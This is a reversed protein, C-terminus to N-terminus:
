PTSSADPSPSPAAPNPRVRLTTMIEDLAAERSGIEGVPIIFAFSDLNPGFQSPSLFLYQVMGVPKTSQRTSLLSDTQSVDVPIRFVGRVMPGAATELREVGVLETGAPVPMTRAAAELEEITAYQSTSRKTWLMALSGSPLPASTTDVAYADLWMKTMPPRVAEVATRRVPDLGNLIAEYSADDWAWQFSSPLELDLTFGTPTHTKGDGAGPTGTPSPESPAAAPGAPSATARETPTATVPETPSAAATSSTGAMGRSPAVTATPTPITGAGCGALVALVSGAIVARITVGPAAM